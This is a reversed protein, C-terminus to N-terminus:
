RRVLVAVYGGDCDTEKASPLTLLESKLRFRRNRHLFNQICLNNEAPEISCTSYCIKGAPKVLKSAKELLETQIKTLKTVADESIRFRVEPRKSLVGTNSCPVDLLVCDFGGQPVNAQRLRRYEIIRISKLGLRAINEKVKELRQSDIDTATIDAREDTEEALQTTKTGPAACIDLIAWGQKPKLLKVAKAATVDQISFLGETFGALKTVAKPAKLKLMQGEAISCATETRNLKEALKEVTIKLPNVRIYVSPRRNSAFCIEKTSEFGFEALWGSVLWKPLSFASSFYDAPSTQPEPLFVNEFECGTSLDQPLTSQPNAETLLIRRNKIQRTLRRLVANVFGGAKRGGSEKANKVAEDVIAHQATQPSYILEYVGIRLINLMDSPVREIPCNVSRSIMTDLVTLNRVCGFVLDTARQTQGTLSLLKNLIAGAYNREPDFQGLVKQAITRASKLDEGTMKSSLEPLFIM